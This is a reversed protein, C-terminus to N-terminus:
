ANPECLRGTLARPESLYRGVLNRFFDADRHDVASKTYWGQILVTPNDWSFFIWTLQFRPSTPSYVKQSHCPDIKILVTKRDRTEEGSSAAFSKTACSPPISTGQYGKKESILVATAFLRRTFPDAINLKLGLNTIFRNLFSDPQYSSLKIHPVKGCFGTSSHSM